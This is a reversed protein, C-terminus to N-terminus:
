SLRIVRTAMAITEKRHAVIIQTMNLAALAQNICQENDPDLHSTAEDLFLIKPKKYLARALLIRQKQGGSLTSGMDGVRTEYGMPLKKITEDICALQAVYRAYELDITEDFFTINEIISGSLLSDEQMVSAVLLRYNKVGFEAIPVGDFLIQGAVPELLGMMVKLLTSKGCGSAGVIAVKEGSKIELSLNQFVPPLIPNYQFSISQLELGGQITSAHVIPMDPLVEPEQSMIDNLRDLQITILRYEFLQDIFSSCKNVFLQRFGLFAFLMGLSIQNNLVLSAGFAVVGIYELHTLLHNMGRYKIQLREVSIDGNLADVLSNRWTNLRVQEKLFAKVPVMTQLSELFISAVKAHQHISTAMKFKLSHYSLYRMIMYFILAGLVLGTLIQSYILMVVLNLIIMFGDLVTTIFDTGIKQQINDIVNVKSQLDGKHRAEFFSLPLKFLHQMVSFSFRETLHMKLYLVLNGRVMETLTQFLMMGVFGLTLILLNHNDSSSIVHDTVYQMFLPGVLNLLEISLSLILLWAIVAKVGRINKILDFLNLKSEANIIKFDSARTVELVVGTYSRSVEDFTMSRVGLAPDHIVVRTKTVKKLVVFHNMDWHLIAPLKVLHLENLPVRLARTQFGLGELLQNIERLSVGHMSPKARKRLATLDIRHGFFCSIMAICAHGCEAVEDQLIMPLTMRAKFSLQASRSLINM